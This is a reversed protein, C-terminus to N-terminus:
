SEKLVKSNPDSAESTVTVHNEPFTLDSTPRESVVSEERKVTIVQEVPAHAVLMHEEEDDHKAAILTEVDSRKLYIVGAGVEVPQVTVLEEDGLEGDEHQIIVINEHEEKSHNSEGVDEENKESVVEESETRVTDRDDEEQSHVSMTYDELREPPAEEDKEETTTEAQVAISAVETEQKVGDRRYRKTSVIHSQDTSQHANQLHRVLVYRRIFGKGCVSCFYCYDRSHTREHRLLMDKRKFGLSCVQCKFKREEQEKQLRAKEEEDRNQSDLNEVVHGSVTTAAPKVSKAVEHKVSSLIRPKIITGVNHEAAPNISQSENALGHPALGEEYRAQEENELQIRPKKRLPDRIDESKVRNVFGWFQDLLNQYKLLNDEAEWSSEWKVKYFKKGNKLM